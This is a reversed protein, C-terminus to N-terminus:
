RHLHHHSDEDLNEAGSINANEHYEKAESYHKREPSSSSSADNSNFTTMAPM